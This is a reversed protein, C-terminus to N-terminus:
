PAIVQPFSRPRLAEADIQLLATAVRLIHGNVGLWLGLSTGIMTTYFAVKMGAIMQGIANLAADGGGSLNLAEVAQSFGAINGILGLTVLWVSVAPVFSGKVKFKRIDVWRGAKVDNLAASTKRVRQIFGIMAIVFVVVMGYGIGTTEHAFLVQVRGQMFGWILGAVICANFVAIRYLLLNNLM